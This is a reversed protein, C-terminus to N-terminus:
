VCISYSFTCKTYVGFVTYSAEDCHSSPHCLICWTTYETIGSETFSILKSEIFTCCCMAYPFV